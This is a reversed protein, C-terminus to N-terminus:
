YWSLFICLISNTLLLWFQLSFYRLVLARFCHPPTLCAVFFIAPYIPCIRDFTSPSHAPERTNSISSLTGLVAWPLIFFYDHIKIYAETKISKSAFVFSFTSVLFASYCNWLSQCIAKPHEYNSNFHFPQM